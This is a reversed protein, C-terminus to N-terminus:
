LIPTSTNCMAFLSPQNTVTSPPNSLTTNVTDLTTNANNLAQQINCTQANVNAQLPQTGELLDAVSAALMDTRGELHGGPSRSFVVQGAGTALYDVSWYDDEPFKSVGMAIVGPAQLFVSTYFETRHGFPPDYEEVKISKVELPTECVSTFLQDGTQVKCTPTHLHTEIDEDISEGSAQMVYTFPDAPSTDRNDRVIVDVDNGAGAPTLQLYLAGDRGHARACESWLGPRGSLQTSILPPTPTNWHEHTLPYLGGHPAAIMKALTATQDALMHQLHTVTIPHPTFHQAVQSTREDLSNRTVDQLAEDCNRARLYDADEWSWHQLRNPSYITYKHDAFGDTDAHPRKLDRSVSMYYYYGHWPGAGVMLWAKDAAPEDPRPNPGQTDFGLHRNEQADSM